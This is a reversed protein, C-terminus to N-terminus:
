KCQCPYENLAHLEPIDHTAAEVIPLVQKRSAHTNKQKFVVLGTIKKQTELPELELNPDTSEQLFQILKEAGNWKPISTFVGLDRLFTGSSVEQGMLVIIQYKKEECFKLLVDYLDLREMLKPISVPFGCIPIGRALKMDKILVLKTALTSIDARAQVLVKLVKERDCERYMSEFMVAMSLDLETTRGSTLSLGATDLVIAGYLLMSIQLTFVDKRKEMVKEAILSSCSGVTSINVTALPWQIGKQVPRHDIVEVVAKELGKWRPSLVHHDVLILQLKGIGHLQRLNVDDRFMFHTKSIKLKQLWFLVETKLNLEEPLIDFIAMAVCDMSYRRYRDYYYIGYALSCAVTDLDCAENGMVVTVTEYEMINWLSNKATQLFHDVMNYGSPQSISM